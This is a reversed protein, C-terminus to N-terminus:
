MDIPDMGPKWILWVLKRTRDTLNPHQRALHIDRQAPHRRGPRYDFWVRCRERNGVRRMCGGRRVSTHVRVAPIIAETHQDFKAQLQALVDAPVVNELITYGANLYQLSHAETGHEAEVEPMRQARPRTNEAM